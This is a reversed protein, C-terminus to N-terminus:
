LCGWLAVMMSVWNDVMQNEMRVAMKVVRLVAMAAVTSVASWVALLVVLEAVRKEVMSVEM